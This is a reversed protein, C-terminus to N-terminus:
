RAKLLRQLKTLENRLEYRDPYQRPMIFSGFGDDVVAALSAVKLLQDTVPNPLKGLDNAYTVQLAHLAQYLDNSMVEIMHSRVM